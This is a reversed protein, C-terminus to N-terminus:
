KIIKLNEKLKVFIKIKTKIFILNILLFFIKLM